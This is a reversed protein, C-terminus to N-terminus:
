QVQLQAIRERKKVRAQTSAHMHYEKMNYQKKLRKQSSQQLNM